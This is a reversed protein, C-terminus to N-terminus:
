PAKVFLEDILLRNTDSLDEFEVAVGIRDRHINVRLIKGKIEMPESMMPHQLYVLIDPLEQDKNWEPLRTSTNTEMFVGGASIDKIVSVHVEESAPLRWKVPAVLRKRTHRRREQAPERVWSVGRDELYDTITKLILSALSRREKRAIKELAQRIETPMRFSYVPDYSM